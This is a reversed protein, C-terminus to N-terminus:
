GGFYIEYADNHQFGLEAEWSKQPASSVSFTATKTQQYVAGNKKMEIVIGDIVLQLTLPMPHPAPMPFLKFMVPISFDGTLSWAHPVADIVNCNASYNSQRDLFNAFGADGVAPAAFTIANINAPLATVQKQGNLVYAIWSALLGTTAGGLSHGTVLFQTAAVVLPELVSIMTRGSSDQANFVLKLDVPAGVSVNTGAVYAFSTQKGVRVDCIVDIINKTGQVAVAFSKPQGSNQLIASFGAGAQRPIWVTQWPSPPKGVAGGDVWSCLSYAMKASPSPDSM